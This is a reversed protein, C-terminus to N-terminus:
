KREGGTEDYTCRNGYQIITHHRLANCTNYCKSRSHGHVFIIFIKPLICM